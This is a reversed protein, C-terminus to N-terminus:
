KKKELSTSELHEYKLWNFGSKTQLFVTGQLGPLVIEM